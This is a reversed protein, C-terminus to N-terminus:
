NKTVVLAPLIMLHGKPLVSLIIGSLCLGKRQGTRQMKLVVSGSWYRGVKTITNRWSASSLNLISRAMEWHVFDAPAISGARIVVTSARNVQRISNQM